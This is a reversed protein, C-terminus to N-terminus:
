LGCKKWLAEMEQDTAFRASGDRIQQQIRRVEELQQPSLRLRGSRQAELELLVHAAEDQREDPWRSVRELVDRLLKTMRCRFSRAARPGGGAASRRVQM